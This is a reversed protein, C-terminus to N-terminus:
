EVGQLKARVSQWMEGLAEEAQSKLVSVPAMKLLGSRSLIEAVWGVLTGGEADRFALNTAMVLGGGLTRNTLTFTVSMGPTRELIALQTELTATAFGLKAKAQWEAADASASRVVGDPVCAALFAADSLNKAVVTRPFPFTESGSFTLM